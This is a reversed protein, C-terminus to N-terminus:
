NVYNSLLNDVSCVDIFQMCLGVPAPFRGRSVGGWSGGGFRAM